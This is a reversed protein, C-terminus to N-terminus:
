IYFRTIYINARIRSEVCQGFAEKVKQSIVEVRSFHSRARRRAWTRVGDGHHGQGGGSKWFSWHCKDQMTKHKFLAGDRLLFELITAIKKVPHFDLWPYFCFHLSRMPSRYVVNVKPTKKKIQFWINLM